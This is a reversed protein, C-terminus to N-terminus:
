GSPSGIMMAFPLGPEALVPLVVQRLVVATDVPRGARRLPLGAAPQGRLVRRSAISGIACSSRAAEISQDDLEPTSEYGWDRLKQPAAPWDRLLPDFRLVGAFRPDDGVDSEELWRLRENDDFVANTMTIRSVGALEMVRDIHEDITARRVM